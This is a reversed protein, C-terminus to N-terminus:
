QMIVPPTFKKLGNEIAFVALQTRTRLGLKEMLKTQLYETQKPSKKLQSAIAIGCLSTGCLQLFHIEEEFLNTVIELQGYKSPYLAQRVLAGQEGEIYFGSQHVADLAKKFECPHADKAIYACAGSHIMKVVAFEKYISSIAIVKIHPHNRQLWVTTDYGNMVPMEIDMLVIQPLNALTLKQIFDQGNSAELIVTYDEFLNIIATLGFRVLHHDEVFAISIKSM